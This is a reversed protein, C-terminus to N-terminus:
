FEFVQGLDAVDVIRDVLPNDKRTLKYEQILDYRDWFHMPLIVKPEMISLYYDMGEFMYNELRADILLFALDPTKGRLFSTYKEFSKIMFDNIVPDEGPWKWLHLDGANFIETGECTVYFAVGEDTSRMTDIQITLVDTEEAEETGAAGLAKACGGCVVPLEFHKNGKVVLTRGWIEETIGYQAKEEESVTIDSGLVYYVNDYKKALDWIVPNYHDPHHHSSFVVLPKDTPFEPMSEKWYDFLMCVQDLEVVYGSHSIYTVKKM